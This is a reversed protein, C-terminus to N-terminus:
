QQNPAKYIFGFKVQHLKNSKSMFKTMVSQTEGRKCYIFPTNVNKKKLCISQISALCSQLRPIVAVNETM